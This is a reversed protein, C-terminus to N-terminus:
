DDRKDELIKGTAADVYVERRRGAPDLYYIGYAMVGHEEEFEIEVIRNGIRAELMKLIQALPLVEGRKRAENLEDHSDRGRRGKDALATGASGAAFAALIVIM